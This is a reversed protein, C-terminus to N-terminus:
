PTTGDSEGASRRLAEARERPGTELATPDDGQAHVAYEWVEKTLPLSCCLAGCGSCFPGVQAGEARRLTDDPYGRTTQGASACSAVGGSGGYV